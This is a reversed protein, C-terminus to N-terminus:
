LGKTPEAKTAPQQAVNLEKLPLFPLVGGSKTELIVKDSKTLVKEV